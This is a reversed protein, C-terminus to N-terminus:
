YYDQVSSLTPLAVVLPPSLCMCLLPITLCMADAMVDRMIADITRASPTGSLVGASSLTLGRVTQLYRVYYEKLASSRDQAGGNQIINGGTQEIM